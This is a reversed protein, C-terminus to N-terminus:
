PRFDFYGVAARGPMVVTGGAPKSPSEPMWEEAEPSSSDPTEDAWTGHAEGLVQFSFRPPFAAAAVYTVFTHSCSRM